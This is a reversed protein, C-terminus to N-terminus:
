GNAAMQTSKENELGATQKFAAAVREPTFGFKEIVQESPASTGFEDVGMVMGNLGVFRHWCMSSGMEIALRKDLRPPLVMEQYQKSQRLFREQCPMSVVQVDIGEKALRERAQLAM